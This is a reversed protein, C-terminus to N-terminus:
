FFSSNWCWRWHRTWLVMQTMAFFKYGPKIKGVSYNLLRLFFADFLKHDYRQEQWMKICISDYQGHLNISLTTLFQTNETGVSTM